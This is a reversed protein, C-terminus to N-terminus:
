SFPIIRKIMCYDSDKNGPRKCFDYLFGKNDKIPIQNWLNKNCNFYLNLIGQDMRIAVPYKENLKFLSEVTNDDTIKTDYIFMTGQFYDKNFYIEYDNIFDRKNNLDDFIEIDFQRKLVWDNNYPYADSHAYICNNPECSTKFRELSDYIICGADMYFVIDWKKFYVDFVLFKNYMFERQLIYSREPHNYQKKWLNMNKPFSRVPVNRLIVNNNKAYHQLQNNNYLSESVLLVIDDKWKGNTKIDNITKIANNIYPENSILVIVWKM